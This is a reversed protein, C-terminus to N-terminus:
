DTLLLWSFLLDEYYIGGDATPNENANNGNFECNYIDIMNAEIKTYAFIACYDINLIKVGHEFNNRFKRKRILFQLLYSGYVASCKSLKLKELKIADEIEKDLYIYIGGGGSAQATCEVITLDYGTFDYNEIHIAGCNLETNLKNFLLKSLTVSPKEVSGNTSNLDCRKNDVCNPHELTCIFGNKCSAPILVANSKKIFNEKGPTIINSDFNWGDVEHLVGDKSGLCRTKENEITISNSIFYFSSSLKTIFYVLCDISDSVQKFVCNEIRLEYDNSM